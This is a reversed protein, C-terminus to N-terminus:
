GGVEATEKREEALEEELVYKYGSIMTDVETTKSVVLTYVILYIHFVVFLSFFWLLLHHIFRVWNLNYGFLALGLTGIKRWLFSYHPASYMILGTLLALFIGAYVLLYTANGLPAHGTYVHSPRRPLFLDRFELFMARWQKPNWPFM